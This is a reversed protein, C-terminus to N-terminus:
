PFRFFLSLATLFLVCFIYRLFIFKLSLVKLFLLAILKRLNLMLSPLKLDSQDVRQILEVNSFLTLVFGPLFIARRLIIM